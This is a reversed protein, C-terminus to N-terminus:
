LTALIRLSNPRASKSVSEARAARGNVLASSCKRRVRARNSLDIAHELARNDAVLQDAGAADAALLARGDGVPSKTM